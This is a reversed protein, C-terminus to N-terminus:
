IANTADMMWHTLGLQVRETKVRKAAPAASAKEQSKRKPM